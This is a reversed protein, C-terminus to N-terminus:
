EDVIEVGLGSPRCVYVRSYTEKLEKECLLADNENSFIGFIASGSGSMCAADAGFSRMIHKIQARGGIDIVQEFVNDCYRFAKKSEGDVLMDLMKECPPHRLAAADLAAYAEKTSVGDSPKVIVIFFDKIDPLPAVVGGTDLALATGGVLCFPIDAGIKLGLACLERESMGTKFMINLAKLVAAGDASGGGLGAFVPTRKQIDIKLGRGSTIGNHEFFAAACKYVINKENCPVFPDDCTIVTQEGPIREFALTDHLGVSQMVTFLRHYGNEKIGTVDLILNIKAYANVKM